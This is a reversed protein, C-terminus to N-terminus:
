VNDRVNITYTYVISVNINPCCGSLFYQLSVEDMNWKVCISKKRDEIDM